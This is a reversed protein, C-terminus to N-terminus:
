RKATITRVKLYGKDKILKTSIENKSMIFANNNSLFLFYYDKSERYSVIEDYSVQREEVKGNINNSSFLMYDDYIEYSVKTQTKRVINVSKLYKFLFIIGGILCILAVAIFVYHLPDLWNNSIISFVIYLAIFAIFGVFCFIIFKVLPFLYQKAAKVDITTEIKNM